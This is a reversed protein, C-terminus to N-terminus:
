STKVALSANCSPLNTKPERSSKQDCNKGEDAGNDEDDNDDYENDDNKVIAFICQRFKLINKELVM